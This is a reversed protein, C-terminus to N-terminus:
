RYANITEKARPGDLSFISRDIKHASGLAIPTHIPIPKEHRMVVPNRRVIAFDNGVSKVTLQQHSRQTCGAAHRLQGSPEALVPSPLATLLIAIGPLCRSLPTM